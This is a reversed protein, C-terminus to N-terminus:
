SPDQNDSTRGGHKRRQDRRRCCGAILDIASSAATPGMDQIFDCSLECLQSIDRPVADVVGIVTIGLSRAYSVISWSALTHVYVAPTRAPGTACQLELSIASIPLRSMWDKIQATELSNCSLCIGFGMRRLKLLSLQATTADTNLADSQIEFIIGIPNVGYRLALGAITRPLDPNLLTASFVTLTITVRHQEDTLTRQLSFVQSATSVFLQDLHQSTDFYKLFDSEAMLTRDARRWLIEARARVRDTAGMDLQPRYHVIFRRQKLAKDLEEPDFAASHGTYRAHRRHILYEEILAQWATPAPPPPVEGFLHLGMRRGTALIAGLTDVPLQDSRIIACFVQQPRMWRMVRLGDLGVLLSAECLALSLPAPRPLATLGRTDSREVVSGFGVNRLLEVAHRRLAQDVVIVWASAHGLSQTRAKNM